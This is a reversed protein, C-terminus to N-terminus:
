RLDYIIVDIQPNKPDIPEFTTTFQHWFLNRDGILNAWKEISSRMSLNSSEICGPIEPESLSPM